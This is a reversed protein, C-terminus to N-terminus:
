IAGCEQKDEEEQTVPDCNLHVLKTDIEWGNKKLWSKFQPYKHAFTLIGITHQEAHHRRCLACVNWEYDPGGSKVSKCHAPDSPKASCVICARRRVAELLKLDVHRRPKM